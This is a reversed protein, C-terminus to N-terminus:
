MPRALASASESDWPRLGIQGFTCIIEDLCNAPSREVKQSFHAFCILFERTQIPQVPSNVIAGIEPEVWWVAPLIRQGLGRAWIRVGILWPQRGLEATMWGLTNAIYPRPFALLLVWM